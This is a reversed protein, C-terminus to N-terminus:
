LLCVPRKLYKPSMAINELEIEFTAKFRYVVAQSQVDLRPRGLLLIRVTAPQPPFPQLSAPGRQDVLLGM